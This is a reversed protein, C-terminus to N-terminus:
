SALCDADYQPRTKTPTSTLWLSLKITSEIPVKGSNGAAPIYRAHSFARLLSAGDVGRTGVAKILYPNVVFGDSNITFHIKICGGGGSPMGPRYTGYDPLWYDQVKDEAVTVVTRPDPETPPTGSCGILFLNALSIGIAALKWFRNATLRVNGEKHHNRRSKASVRRAPNM